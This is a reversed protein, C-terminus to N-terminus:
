STAVAVVKWIKTKNATEGVVVIQYGGVVRGKIKKLAYGLSKTTAVKNKGTGDDVFADLASRLAPNSSEILKAVTVPQDQFVQTWSGILERLQDRDSDSEARLRAVGGLPDAGGCWIIAGRVLADWEEFSGKASKGHAPRGAVSFARLITLAAVVLRPREDLVYAKLNPHTFGDRDEPHEMMPDLNIPVVRRGLDCKYQVNQGTLAWVPRMTATVKLSKGLYRDTVVGATIAMALAPCGFAGAVNDYTVLSPAEMALALLRKREEDDSETPPMKPAERGTNIIATTDVLLGKGSGPTTAQVTFLPCCGDIAGRGVQSLILAVTAARDSDATEAGFLFDRYVDVLEAYARQADEITPQEPVPPFEVGSPDYMLRTATDYGPTSLITGDMRLVPTESIGEIVPLNWEARALLTDVVWTPVQSARVDGDRTRTQWTAASALLERLRAKAIEVIVPSGEPRKIHDRGGHDRVVEVLTRNRVYVGGLKRLARVAEDVVHAIKTPQVLIEPRETDSETRPAGHARMKMTNLDRQLNAREHALRSVLAEAEATRERERQLDAANDLALEAVTEVFAAKRADDINTGALHAVNEAFEIDEVLRAAWVEVIPPVNGSETSSTDKGLNTTQSTAAEQGPAAIENEAAM